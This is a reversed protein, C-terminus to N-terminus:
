LAWTIYIYLLFYMPRILKGLDRENRRGVSIQDESIALKETLSRNQLSLREIENNLEGILKNYEKRAINNSRSSAKELCATPM